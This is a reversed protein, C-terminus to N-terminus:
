RHSGDCIPSYEFGGKGDDRYCPYTSPTNQGQLTLLIAVLVLGLILQTGIATLALWKSM